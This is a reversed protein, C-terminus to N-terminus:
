GEPTVPPLNPTTARVQQVLKNHADMLAAAILKGEATDGYGGVRGGGFIGGGWGRLSGVGGFDTVKASGEAAATQLGSQADTVFLVTQAEQFSMSGLAGGVLGGVAGGVLNGVAGLAGSADLGGANDDSFVVNPTVIYQATVMRGRATTSGEQLMGSAKLADEQQINAMAAGRDVVQFCNSQAMMLRVLPLPSELRLAYLRSMVYNDPEVLTATGLPQACRELQPGAGQGGAQGASGQVVSSGAGLQPSGQCGILLATAAVLGLSLPLFSRNQPKKRRPNSILRGQKM